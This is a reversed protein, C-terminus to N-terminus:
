RSLPPTVPTPKVVSSSLSSLTSLSSAQSSAAAFLSASSMMPLSAPLPISGPPRNGLMPFPFPPKSAGMSSLAASAAAAQRYYMELPSIGAGAMLPSPYGPYPSRYLAQLASYNGTEALLELGVSTTRKWKTRRNQYWTKVQTDTLNLKAALEQRDQVSLYKQKEFSRELTQLQYDTFATRAKRQKRALASERSNCNPSNEDDEEGDDSIDNEKYSGADSSATDHPSHVRHMSPPFQPALGLPLPLGASAGSLIDTIMFGSSRLPATKGALAHMASPSLQGHTQDPTPSPTSPNVTHTHRDMELESMDPSSSSVPYEPYERKKPPVASSINATEVTM